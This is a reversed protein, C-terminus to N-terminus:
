VKICPLKTKYPCFELARAVKTINQKIRNETEGRTKVSCDVIYYVNTTKM